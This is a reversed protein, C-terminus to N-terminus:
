TAFIFAIVFTGFAVFGLDGAFNYLDHTRAWAAVLLLAVFFCLSWLPSALRMPSLGKGAATPAM